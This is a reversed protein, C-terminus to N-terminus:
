VIRSSKTYCLGENREERSLVSEREKKEQFDMALAEMSSNWFSPRMDAM